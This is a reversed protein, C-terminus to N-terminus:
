PVRVFEYWWGGNQPVDFDTVLFAFRDEEIYQVELENVEVIRPELQDITILILKRSAPDMSWYVDAFVHYYDLGYESNYVHDVYIEENVNKYVFSDCSSKEFDIAIADMRNEMIGGGDDSFTILMDYYQFAVPIGIVNFDIDVGETLLPNGERIIENNVCFYEEVGMTDWLPYIEDDFYHNVSRIKALEWKGTLQDDGGLSRITFCQKVLNGINDNRDYAVYEVCFTGPVTIDDPLTIVIASDAYDPNGDMIRKIIGPKKFAPKRRGSLPKSFDIKFHAEDYGVVRLYYGAIEGSLVSPKFIAFKGAIAPLTQGAAIEELVPGNTGPAPMAGNMKQGHHVAIKEFLTQSSTPEPDTQQDADNKKCASLLIIIGLLLGLLNKTNNM